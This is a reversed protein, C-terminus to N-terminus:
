RLVSPTSGLIDVPPPSDQIQIEGPVQRRLLELVAGKAAADALQADALRIEALTEDAQAHASKNEAELLLLRDFGGDAVMRQAHQREEELAAKNQRALALQGNASEIEIEAEKLELQAKQQLQKLRIQEQLLISRAEERRAALRGGDFIPLNVSVAVTHTEV